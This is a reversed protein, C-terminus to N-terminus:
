RQNLSVYLQDILCSVYTCRTRFFLAVKNEVIFERM